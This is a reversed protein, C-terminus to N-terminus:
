ATEQYSTPRPAAQRPCVAGPSRVPTTSTSSGSRAGKTGAVFSTETSFGCLRLRRLGKAPVRGSVAKLVECAVHTNSRRGFRRCAIAAPRSARAAAHAAQDEACTEDPGIERARPHCRHHARAEELARRLRCPRGRRWGPAYWPRFGSRRRKTEAQSLRRPTPARRRGPPPSPRDRPPPGPRAMSCQLFTM